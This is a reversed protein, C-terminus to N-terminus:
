VAVDGYWESNFCGVGIVGNGLEQALGMGGKGNANCWTNIAAVCDAQQAKGVSDCGGHLQRLDQISVDGYWTSDACAVLFEDAGVEQVIGVDGHGMAGCWRHVASFCENSQSIHVSNCGPHHKQLDTVKVISEHEPFCGVGFVGAGVQQSVGGCNCKEGCFRSMAAVCAPNRSKHVSNCGDHYSRLSHEPMGTSGTPRHAICIRHRNPKPICLWSLPCHECSTGSHIAAKVDVGDVVDIKGDILDQIVGAGVELGIDRLKDTLWATLCSGGGGLFDLVACGAATAYDVDKIDSSCTVEWGDAWDYYGSWDCVDANTIGLLSSLILASTVLLTSKM